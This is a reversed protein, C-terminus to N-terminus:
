EATRAARIGYSNNRNTNVGTLANVYYRSSTEVYSPLGGYYGGTYSSGRLSVSANNWVTVDCSGSSGLLGDGHTVATVLRSNANGISLTPEWISGGMEMVGYYTAGSSQRNSSSTAYIGCRLLSVGASYNCNGATAAENPLGANVYNGGTNSISTNGWPYEAAVPVINAGRCAKEYELESYPRMGAWDVYSFHDAISLGGMAREPQAAILSPHSGTFTGPNRQLYKASDIANLFDAYQQQSAEYKMLWFANYGKPYAAPIPGSNDGGGSYVGAGTNNTYYLYGNSAGVNIASNSSITYQYQAVGSTGYTSFVNFQTSSGDGVTFTGAPIYVMEIAYVNIDVSDADLVGDAGYNWRISNAAFSINGIGDADRYIWIGKGDSSTRITAGAASTHGCALADGPAAYNISAHRWDSTGKKRWKVFIWAGDYNSENTSTRWSNDWNVDFNVLTFHSATNQGSLSVNAIQINNAMSAMSTLLLCCTAILYWKRM